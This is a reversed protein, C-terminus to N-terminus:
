KIEGLEFLQLPKEKGKVYIAEVSTLTITNKFEESLKEEIAESIIINKNLSDCQKQIRSTTNVTESIITGDLRDEEGITGVIM